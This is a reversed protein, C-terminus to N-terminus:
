LTPVSRVFAATLSSEIFKKVSGIWDGAMLSTCIHAQGQEPVM